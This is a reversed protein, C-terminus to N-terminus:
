WSFCRRSVPTSSMLTLCIMKANLELIIRIMRKVQLRMNQGRTTDRVRQLARKTRLTEVLHHNGTVSIHGNGVVARGNQLFHVDLMLDGLQKNLQAFRLVIFNTIAGSTYDTRLECESAVKM